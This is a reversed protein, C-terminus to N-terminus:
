QITLLMVLTKKFKFSHQKEKKLNFDKEKSISEPTTKLIKVTKRDVIVLLDDVPSFSLPSSQKPM